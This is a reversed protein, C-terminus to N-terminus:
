AALRISCNCSKACLTNCRPTQKSKKPKSKLMTKIFFSRKGMVRPNTVKLQFGDLAPPGGPPVKSGEGTEVAARGPSPVPLAGPVVGVAGRSAANAAASALRQAAKFKAQMRGPM